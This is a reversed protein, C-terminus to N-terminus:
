LLSELLLLASYCGQNLLIFNLVCNYQAKEPMQSHTQTHQEPSSHSTLLTPAYRGPAWSSTMSMTLAKMRLSLTVLSMLTQRRRDRHDSKLQWLHSRSHFPFNLCCNNCPKLAYLCIASHLPHSFMNCPLAKQILVQVFTLLNLQLVFKIRNSQKLVLETKLPSCCCNLLVRKAPKNHQVSPELFTMIEFYPLRWYRNQLLDSQATITFYNM